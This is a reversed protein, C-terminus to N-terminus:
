RSPHQDNLVEALTKLLKDASFPKSLFAKVWTLAVEVSKGNETLGSSAIIRVEPNLKRLARILAPGDMFPMMMDTLVVKIESRHEAYLAIAEAGDGATLVRYNFAELTSRTIERIATEDDVVLILEEHGIPLEDPAADAQRLQGAELAPLYVRFQTGRGVESYVNVFGGHGKAIGLVTSLGLGTGKGIEKTTFFPDFIRDLHELPIGTGTDAVTILVFRGPRADLIMRASTEDLIKNEAEIRLKGGEPMADRANICLNMLVQHLQTADGNIMWLDEAIRFSIEISKPFTERLIKIVERILHKPQMAVREGGIGRAFSLVQRVMEGGREANARLLELMRQSQEDTTKMQLMQVAMLMPSLVNNLDHAIGGALTGISELRQARLFQAELKKKETVDTNIALVSKPYGAEDCVLTWRCEAMLKRGDRAVQPLEGSWTGRELVARNAREFDAAANLFQMLRVDQGVAEEATWGYLNEAGKNWFLVRGNPDRIIIADRALNLMAAQERLREEARKRETIDRLIVTYFKQGDTEMQSIAAEIPFEEGSSRMGFVAGLAGMSRRTVHTEGFNEIHHQHAERFRRPIFRDLPQGIAESVSCGFMKEAAANFLTVRQSSDITIIADMASSIIGAMRRQSARLENEAQRRRAVDYISIFLGTPAPVARTEFWTDPTPFFHEFVAVRLGTMARRCETEFTGGALDPCVEWVSRGIIEARSGGCHREAKPSLHTIRWERNLFVFGDTIHELLEVIREDELLACYDHFGTPLIEPLSMKNRHM